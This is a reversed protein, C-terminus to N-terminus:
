PKRAAASLQQEGFKGLSINLSQIKRYNRSAAIESTRMQRINEFLRHSLGLMKVSKMSGLIESTYNIRCQVAELWVRQRTTILKAALVSLGTSIAAVLVPAVCVAGLQVYLLYVAIGLQVLSPLVEVLLEWFTEAIRQVDTGMLSMAASDSANALALTLMKTYIISMLQGRIMAMLRFSLYSTWGM